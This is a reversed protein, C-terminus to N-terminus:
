IMYKQYKEDLLKEAIKYKKSLNSTVSNVLPKYKLYTEWVMYAGKEKGKIKLAIATAGNILGKQLNAEEKDKKKLEKWSEELVEHAKVFKENEINAIFKDIPLL